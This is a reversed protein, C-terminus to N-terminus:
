SCAFTCIELMCRQFNEMNWCNQLLLCYRTVDATRQGLLQPESFMRVHLNGVHLTPFKAHRLMWCFYVFDPLMLPESALLQLESFMWVHLIGVQLTPFKAHRLMSCFYFIDPLMLPKGAWCSFSRSCKFTCIELMCHQFNLKDWCNLLLLCYRTVDAARQGWLQLESFTQVHLNGVHSTPFKARWLVWCCYVIDSLM